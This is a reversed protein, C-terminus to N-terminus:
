ERLLPLLAVVEAARETDGLTEYGIQAEELHHVAKNEDGLPVYVREGLDANIPGEM